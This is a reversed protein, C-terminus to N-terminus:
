PIYVANNKDLRIESWGRLRLDKQGAGGNQEQEVGSQGFQNFTVAHAFPENDNVTIHGPYNRETVGSPNNDLMVESFPVTTGQANLYVGEMVWKKQNNDFYCVYNNYADAYCTITAGIADNAGMLQVAPNYYKFKLTTPIKWRGQGPVPAGTARYINSRQNEARAYMQGLGPALPDGITRLSTYIQTRYGNTDSSLYAYAYVSGWLPHSPNLPGAWHTKWGSTPAKDLVPSGIIESPPAAPVQIINNGDIIRARIRSNMTAEGGVSTLTLTQGAAAATMLLFFFLTRMIEGFFFFSPNLLGLLM